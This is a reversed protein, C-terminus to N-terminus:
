NGNFVGSLKHLTNMFIKKQDHPFDGALVDIIDKGIDHTPNAYAYAFVTLAHSAGKSEDSDPDPRDPMQYAPYITNELPYMM